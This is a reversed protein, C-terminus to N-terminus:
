RLLRIHADIERQFQRAAATPQALYGVVAESIPGPADVLRRLHGEEDEAREVGHWLAAFVAAEDAVRVAAWAAVQRRSQPCQALPAPLAVPATVGATAGAEVADIFLAANGARAEARVRGVEALWRRVERDRSHAALELPTEDQDDRHDTRGTRPSSLHGAMAAAAIPTTMMHADSEQEVDVEHALLVRVVNLYGM